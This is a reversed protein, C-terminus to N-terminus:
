TFFLPTKEQDTFVKQQGHPKNHKGKSKLWLTNRHIGYKESALRISLKNQRIDKLAEELRENTYNRYNRSGVKRKYVRPM